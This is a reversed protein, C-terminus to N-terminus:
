QFANDSNVCKARSGGYNVSTTGRNGGYGGNGGYGTPMTRVTRRTYVQKQRSPLKCKEHTFNGGQVKSHM